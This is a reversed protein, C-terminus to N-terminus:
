NLILKFKCYQLKWENPREFKFNQKDIYCYKPWNISLKFKINKTCYYKDGDENINSCYNILEEVINDRIKLYFIKDLSKNGLIENLEAAFELLNVNTQNKILNDIDPKGEENFIIIFRNVLCYSINLISIKNLPNNSSKLTKTQIKQQKKWNKVLFLLKQM